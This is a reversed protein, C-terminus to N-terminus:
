SFLFGGVFIWLYEAAYIHRKKERFDAFIPNYLILERDYDLCPLCLWHLNSFPLARLYVYFRQKQQFFRLQRIEFFFFSAM